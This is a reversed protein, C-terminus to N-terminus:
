ALYFQLYFRVQVISSETLQWFAKCFEVDANKMITALKQARLEPNLMYKTSSFLSKATKRVLDNGNAGTTIDYSENYSALAVTCATLPLRLSECFKFYFFINAKLDMLRSCINVQFACSRGFFAEQNTSALLFLSKEINSSISSQDLLLSHMECTKQQMEDAIEFLIQFKEILLCWTEYEKISSPLLHFKVQFYFNQKQKYISKVVNVCQSCCKEFASNLTRYGNYELDVACDYNIANKTLKDNLELCKIYSTLFRSTVKYVQCTMNNSTDNKDGNLLLAEFYSHIEELYFKLKDFNNQFSQKKVSGKRENVNTPMNNVDEIEITKSEFSRLLSRSVQFFTKKLNPTSSIKKKIDSSDENKINDSEMPIINMDTPTLPPTPLEIKQEILIEQSNKQTVQSVSPLFQKFFKDMRKKFRRRIMVNNSLCLDPSKSLVLRIM